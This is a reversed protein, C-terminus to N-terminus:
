IASLFYIMIFYFRHNALVDILQGVKSSSTECLDKTDICDDPDTKRESPSSKGSEISEEKVDIVEVDSNEEEKVDIVEVDSNKGSGEDDNDDKDEASKSSEPKELESDVDVNWFLSLCIIIWKNFAVPVHFSLVFVKAAAPILNLRSRKVKKIMTM